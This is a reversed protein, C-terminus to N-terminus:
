RCIYGPNLRSYSAKHTDRPFSPDIELEAVPSGDCAIMGRCDGARRTLPSAYVNSGRELYPNQPHPARRLNPHPTDPLLATPKSGSCLDRADKGKEGDGQPEAAPAAPPHTGLARRSSLV